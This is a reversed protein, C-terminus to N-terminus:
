VEKINFKDRLINIIKDLKRSITPQTTNLLKGIEDLKLGQLRYQLIKKYQGELNNIEKYLKNIFLSKDLFDDINFNDALMDELILNEDIKTDFSINKNWKNNQRQYMCVENQMVKYAYTAFTFGKSKNYTKGAKTLGLLCISQLEDLDVYGKYYNYYHWALDYALNINNTILSEEEATM